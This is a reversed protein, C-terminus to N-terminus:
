LTIGFYFPEKQFTTLNATPTHLDSSSRTNINHIESNSEYVRLDRYKAVFLLLSFINYCLATAGTVLAFVLHRVAHSTPQECRTRSLVPIHGRICSTSLLANTLVFHTTSHLRLHRDTQVRSLLSALQTHPSVTTTLHNEGMKTQLSITTFGSPRTSYRHALSLRLVQSIRRLSHFRMPNKLTYSYSPTLVLAM